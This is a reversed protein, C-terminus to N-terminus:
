VQGDPFDGRYVRGAIGEGILCEENFNRTAALIDVALFQKAPVLNKSTKALSKRKPVRGPKISNNNSSSTDRGIM